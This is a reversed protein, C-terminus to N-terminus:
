PRNKTPHEEMKKHLECTVLYLASLIGGTLFVYLLAFFLQGGWAVIVGVGLTFGLLLLFANFFNYQGNKFRLYICTIPMIIGFQVTALIGLILAATHDTSTLGSIDRVSLIGFLIIALIIGGAFWSHASYRQLITM